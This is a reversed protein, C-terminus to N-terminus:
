ATRRREFESAHAGEVMLQRCHEIFRDERSIDESLDRVTVYHNHGGTYDKQSKCSRYMLAIGYRFSNEHVQVYLYDAHLTIEGAIAPGAKNSRIEYTGKPLGLAKALSSLLRKGDRHFREKSAHARETYGNIDKANLLTTAISLASVPM